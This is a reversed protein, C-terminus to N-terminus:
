TAQPFFLVVPLQEINALCFLLLLLGNRVGTMKIQAVQILLHILQVPVGGIGHQTAAAHTSHDGGRQQPTGPQHIHIDKEARHAGPIVSSRNPCGCMAGEAENWLRANHKALNERHVCNRAAFTACQFHM